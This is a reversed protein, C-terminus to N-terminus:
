KNMFDSMKNVLEILKASDTDGLYSILALLKKWYVNRIEACKKKGKDTLSIIVERRNAEHMTRKIYGADELASLQHTIGAMTIKTRKALDSPKLLPLDQSMCCIKWLIRQESSNLGPVQITPPRSRRMQFFISELAAARQEILNRDM